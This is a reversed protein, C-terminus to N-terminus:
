PTGSAEGTGNIVQQVEPSALVDNLSELSAIVPPRGKVFVLFSPTQGIGAKQSIALSQSVRDIAPDNTDALRKRAVERDVGVKVLIEELGAFTKVDEGEPGFIAHIFEWFKDSDAAIEAAIAAPLSMEHGENKYYPLHRYAVAVNKPYAVLIDGIRHASARCAPCYFDAFEVVVVPANPDGSFYEPRSAVTQVTIGEAKVAAVQKMSGRVTTTYVGTAGIAIVLCAGVWAHDLQLEGPLKWEESALFGYTIFTLIMISASTLCWPCDLRLVNYLLNMLYLSTVGGIGAVVTGVLVLKRGVAAPVFLRIAALSFLLVYGVLGFVPVPIGFWQAEPLQALKDCGSSPGCAITLKNIYSYSLSGAVFIGAASLLLLFRNLWLSSM